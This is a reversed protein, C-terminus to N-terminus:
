KTSGDGQMYVAQYRNTVNVLQGEQILRNIHRLALSKNLHCGTELQKRTLTVGTTFHHLVWANVEENTLSASHKKAEARKLHLTALEKMLKSEPRFKIGKARVHEARTRPTAEQTTCTLKLSLYGVGALHVSRGAKLGQVICHSLETLCGIVDSDTLSCRYNILKMMEETDLTSKGVVRPHYQKEDSKTFSPTEYFDFEIAM